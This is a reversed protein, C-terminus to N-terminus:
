NGKMEPISALVNVGLKSKVETSNNFTHSLYESSFAVGLAAFSGLILSLLINLLKKPKVPKIPPQAPEIVSINAIKQSDMADSIRAEEMNKIYLQYNEENLKVDRELEKLRLEITNIRDLEQQYGALHKQQSGEKGRLANLNHTISNVAKDHYIKEEKNLLAQATEIEKRVNTVMISEETYKALLEEEKMKLEALRSRISSIAYPNLETETGLKLEALNASAGAKLAYMKGENESIEGRTRALETELDSIQKLLLTKQEQLSSINNGRKIGELENESDKLKQELLKVQDDFFSYQQSQKYVSLHHELFADTLGNVAQAAIVPDKHEFKIEIVDSKKVGEISLKKEFAITAKELPTLEKAWPRPILPKQDIDPYITTAGLKTISTEILNRGRFIEIESNLREERSSDFLIPQNGGAAPSTPTFVNERGFKVLVKSSAEYVPAMLFSGVTVTIVITAFITIMKAKHKFLINLIDRLSGLTENDPTM